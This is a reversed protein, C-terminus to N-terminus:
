SGQPANGHIQVGNLNAGASLGQSNMSPVTTDPSDSFRAKVRSLTAIFPDKGQPMTAGVVADLLEAQDGLSLDGIKRMGDEVAETWAKESTFDSRKLLGMAMVKFAVSPGIAAIREPTVQQLQNGLLAELEPYERVLGFVSLASLGPVAVKKGRITCSFEPPGFDILGVMYESAQQSAM